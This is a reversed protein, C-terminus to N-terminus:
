DEDQTGCNADRPRRQPLEGVGTRRFPFQSQYLLNGAPTGTDPGHVRDPGTLQTRRELHVQMDQDIPVHAHLLSVVNRFLHRTPQELLAGVDHVDHDVHLRGIRSAIRSSGGPGWDAVRGEASCVRSLGPPMRDALAGRIRGEEM